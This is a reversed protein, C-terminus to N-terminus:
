DLPADLLTEVVLVGCAGTLLENAAYLAAKGFFGPKFVRGSPLQWGLPLRDREVVTAEWLGIPIGLLCRCM